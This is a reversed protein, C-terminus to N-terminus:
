QEWNSVTNDPLNKDFQIMYITLHFLETTSASSAILVWAFAVLPCAYCTVFSQRHRRHNLSSWSSYVVQCVFPAIGMPLFSVTSSQSRYCLILLLFVWICCLRLTTQIVRIKINHSCKCVIRIKIQDILDSQIKNQHNLQGSFRM